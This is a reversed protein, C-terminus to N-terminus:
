RLLDTLKYIKHKFHIYMYMIQFNIITLKNQGYVKCKKGESRNFLISLRSVM